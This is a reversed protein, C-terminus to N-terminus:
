TAVTMDSTPACLTINSIADGCVAESITGHHKVAAIKWVGNTSDGTSSDLRVLQGCLARPEFIMELHIFKNERLPTNLLGSASTITELIGQYGENDKLCFAKGDAVFFGGGTLTTLHEFINGYYSESKFITGPYDGIAGRSIGYDGLAAVLAEIISKYTTGAKFTLNTKGNVSAFGGLTSILTTIFNTSERVSWGQTLTGNFITPMNTGYGAKFIVKRYFSYDIQDKRLVSRTTDALNYIRFTSTNVLAFAKQQVDFEITFPRKVQVFSNADFPADM